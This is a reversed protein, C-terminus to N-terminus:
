LRGGLPYKDRVSQLWAPIDDGPPEIEMLRALAMATNRYGREMESEGRLREVKKAKLRAYIQGIQPAFENGEAAIENITRSVETFPANGFFQLWTGTTLTMEDDTQPAKYNTWLQSMQM